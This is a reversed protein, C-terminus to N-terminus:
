SNLVSHLCPVPVQVHNEARISLKNFCFTTYFNTGSRHFLALYFAKCIEEEIEEEEEEEEGEDPNFSLSAIKRKQEEKRKKEKQKELKRCSCVLCSSKFDFRM